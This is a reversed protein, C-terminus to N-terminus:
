RDSGALRLTTLSLSRPRDGDQWRVVVTVLLANSPWSQRDEASGYPVARVQWSYRDDFRGSTDGEHLPIATGLEDAVSEALGSAVTEAQTRQALDLGTSFMNLLVSLSIGLIALSVLIEILTFGSEGTHQESSM